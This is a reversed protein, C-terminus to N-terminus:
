GKLIRKELHDVVKPVDGLGNIQVTDLGHQVPSDTRVGVGMLTYRRQRCLMIERQLIELEENYNAAPMQGDTYYMIIKDTAQSQDCVKRYFELTHGDVNGGTSQLMALREKTVPNWTEHATKVVYIDLAMGSHEHDLNGSHAYVAFKIGIRNCLEAQAMGAQKIMELGGTGMGTSGSIDLGIVVFYDRKALKTKKSFLRPDNTAIRKGLVRANVRGAKLNGEIKTARNDAFTRRMRLLAPALVPEPTTGFREVMRSAVHPTYFGQTYADLEDGYQHVRVGVINESPADFFEQQRIARDIAENIEDELDADREEDEPGGAGRHGGFVELAKQADEASGPDSQEEDDDQEGPASSGGAAGSSDSPDGASESPTEDDDNEYDVDGPRFDDDDVPEDDFDGDSLSDDGDGEYDFDDDADEDSEGPSADTGNDTGNSDQQADATADTGNDDASESDDSDAVSPAGDSDSEDTTESDSEHSDDADASDDGADSEDDSDGAAGSGDEDDLDDADASDGAETESNSNGSENSEDDSDQEVTDDSDGGTDESDDDQPTSEPQPEQEEEAPEPEPEPDDELEDPAKLYGLERVRELTPFALEYVGKVGGSMELKDCLETLKPDDLMAVIEPSFWQSYDYKAAKAYLGCIAQSNAPLDKWHIVSGDIDAMGNNFTRHTQARFSRLTGPRSTYMAHNVRVDEFANMITPLFPSIEHAVEMYNVVTRKSNDFKDAIKAARKAPDKVGPQSRVANLILDRKEHEPINEFSDFAIHAVEHYLTIFIDDTTACAECLQVDHEDRHGCLERDHTLQDGLEIPPRLYITRGDTRPPGSDWVVNVTADRTLMRAFGNVQVTMGRAKAVARRARERQDDTLDAYKNPVRVVIVDAM